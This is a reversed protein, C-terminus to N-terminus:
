RLSAPRGSRAGCRWRTQRARRARRPPPVAAQWGPLAWQGAEPSCVRLAPLLSWATCPVRALGSDPWERFCPRSVKRALQSLALAPARVAELDAPQWGLEAQRAQVLAELAEWSPADSFRMGGGFIQEEEVQKLCIGNM